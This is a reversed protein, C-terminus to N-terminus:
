RDIYVPKFGLLEPRPGTNNLTRHLKTRGHHERNATVWYYYEVADLGLSARHGNCFRCAIVLNNSSNNGGDARSVVHEWTAYSPNFPDDVLLQDGCYCCRNNQSEMFKRKRGRTSSLSYKSRPRGTNEAKAMQKTIIRRAIHEVREIPAGALSSPISFWSMDVPCYEELYQKIAAITDPKHVKKNRAIYVTDTIYAHYFAMLSPYNAQGGACFSCLVITNMYSERYIKVVQARANSSSYDIAEVVRHCIACRHGQAECLRSRTTIKEKNYLPATM